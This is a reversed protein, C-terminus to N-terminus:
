TKEIGFFAWPDGEGVLLAVGKGSPPGADKWGGPSRREIVEIGPGTIYIDSESGRPHNVVFMALDSPAGTAMQLDGFDEQLMSWEDLPLSKMRWNVKSM